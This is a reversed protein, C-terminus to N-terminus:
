RRCIASYWLAFSFCILRVRGSHQAYHPPTYEAPAQQAQWYRRINRPADLPQRTTDDRGNAARYLDTRCVPRRSTSAGSGFSLRRFLLACALPLCNGARAINWRLREPILAAAAYYHTIYANHSWRIVRLPHQTTAESSCSLPRFMTPVFVPPLWHCILRVDPIFAMAPHRTSFARIMLLM